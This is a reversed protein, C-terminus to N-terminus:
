STLVVKGVNQREQLFRHAKAAEALPFTKGVVPKIRGAEYDGLLGSMERRLMAIHDWLHGLNVGVVAKNDNMLKIPHFWPLQVVAALARLRSPAMGSSAQSLGFCVLRGLPALCRYSKRFAGTADLAIDVGRGATVRKVGEEFDETRYDICHAVGMEKLAAHKSASATGIVQAGAIRCLQIAAMGVGGAAAHVLVRDGERVNGFHRLMLIATLYNVPIAAAEEFTMAGPMPFVQDAPIAIADAYGGFRTLAFVRDGTQFGTVGPGTREVVGSVEYGVVCPPPPADPYVGLRASVDAFNVGSGRVRVLVQGDKATPDPGERLELVEPPGPRPIWVARM